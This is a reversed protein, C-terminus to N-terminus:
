NFYSSGFIEEGYNIDKYWIINLSTLSTPFLVLCCYHLSYPTIVTVNLCIVCLVGGPLGCGGGSSFMAQNTSQVMDPPKQLSVTSSTHLTASQLSASTNHHLTFQPAAPTILLAVESTVNTIMLLLIQRPSSSGSRSSSNVGINWPFVLSSLPRALFPTDHELMENGRESRNASMEITIFLRPCSVVRCLENWNISSTM